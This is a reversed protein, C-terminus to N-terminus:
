FGNLTALANLVANSVQLGSDDLEGGALDPLQDVGEGSNFRDTSGNGRLTDDGAEGFIRDVGGGGVVNDNGDGGILTDRGSNGNITDNGDGGNVIDNGNNADIVDDGDGGDITDNGAEGTITDNGDGGKIADDGAQGRITDAGTGGDLSDNGGGGIVRDQDPGGDAVDNGSSGNVTDNGFGGDLNDDGENGNLNDNGFSGILSDNGVDGNLTDNNLGGNLTDNGNGGAAFDDGNGADVFDDGDSGLISDDGDNGNITEDGLSGNVTDNDDGGNITLVVKGLGAGTATITDNGADGDITLILARVDDVDNLTISDNGDGGMVSVIGVANSATISAAGESIRLLSLTQDIVFSDDGNDGVAVLTIVGSSEEVTDVGNGVGGWNIRDDGATADLIDNGAQGDLTDNGAGGRLTDNGDGGEINDDGDNGLLSDAGAGGNLSDNGNAGILTDNGSGGTLTDDPVLAPLGGDDGTITFQGQSDSIVVGTPNRLNILFTEDGENNLDGIVDVDITQTLTMADFTLVGTTTVNFDTGSQASENQVDFEVTVTGTPASSLTVTFQAMTTGTNGEVLAVDDISLTPAATGGDDDTITVQAQSDGLVAGSASTLNVLFNEDSEATFEPVINVSIQQTTVGPAFTLTGPVGSFDTTQTALVDVFDFDVTVQATPAASLTVDITAAAAAGQNLFVSLEPTAGATGVALDPGDVGDLDATYVVTPLSPSVTGALFTADPSFVGMGDNLLAIVDDGTGPAVIADIDGDQDFDGVSISDNNLNAVVVTVEQALSFQRMGDNQIVNVSGGGSGTTSLVDTDGDGDVDALAISGIAGGAMGAIQVPAVFNGAGDGFRIETLNTGNRDGYALDLNGDGDFDTAVPSEIIGTANPITTTVAAAFTGGGQNSYFRILQGSVGVIDLNTDGDFDGLVLTTADDAVPGIAIVAGFTGDGNGLVVGIPSENADIRSAAIDPNGDGDFDGIAINEGLGSVLTQAAGFVGPATGPYAVIDGLPSGTRTVLDIIGDGTIDVSTVDLAAASATINTTTFAIPDGETVTLDSISVTPLSSGGATEASDILDNGSGGDLLDGDGGGSLEDAGSQGRVTDNGTGGNLTDAGSGGLVRDDDEGGDAVDNGGNGNIVDDGTGGSLSDNRQGGILTDDGADGNLTDDNGQGDLRDNADGGSISDNGTGGFVTDMGAGGTVVDNGSMANVSDDGDGANVTDNGNGADITDNGTGGDISDAGDGGTVTDTGDGADITDDGDDGDISDNGLGGVVSDNGDGADITDNGDGADITDNGDNGLLSEAFEDSGLIQDNGDGAEVNITTLSGFESVNLATLDIVNNDSGTFVNIRTVATTQIAPVTDAVVGTNTILVEVNGTNTDRQIRIDDGQDAFVSLETGVLVGSVSLLTRDELKETTQPLQLSTPQVVPRRNLNARRSRRLNKLWSTLIM